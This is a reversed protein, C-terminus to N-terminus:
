ARIQIPSGVRDWALQVPVPASASVAPESAAQVPHSAALVLLALM